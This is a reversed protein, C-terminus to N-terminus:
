IRNSNIFKLLINNKLFTHNLVDSSNFTLHFRHYHGCSDLVSEFSSFIQFIMEITTPILM